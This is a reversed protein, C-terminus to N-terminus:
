LINVKFDIIIEVEQETWEETNVDEKTSVTVEARKDAAFAMKAQIMHDLEALSKNMSMDENISM